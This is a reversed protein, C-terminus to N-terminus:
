GLVDKPMKFQMEVDKATQVDIKDVLSQIQSEITERIGGNSFHKKIAEQEAKISAMNTDRASKYANFESAMQKSLFNDYRIKDLDKEHQTKEQKYYSENASSYNYSPKKININRFGTGTQTQPPTTTKVQSTGVNNNTFYSKGNPAVVYVSDSSYNSRNPDDSYTYGTFQNDKNYNAFKYKGQTITQTQQTTQNQQAPTKKKDGTGSSKSVWTGSSKCTRIYNKWFTIFYPVSLM